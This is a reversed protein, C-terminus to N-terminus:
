AKVELIGKLQIDESSSGVMVEFAGQEVVRHTNQDLLALDDSTLIFDVTELNVGPIRGHDVANQSAHGKGELIICRL